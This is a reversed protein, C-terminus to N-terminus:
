DLTYFEFGCSDCAHKTADGEVEYSKGDYEGEEIFASGAKKMTGTSCKPCSYEKEM